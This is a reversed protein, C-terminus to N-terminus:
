QGSDARVHPRVDITGGGDARVVISRGDVKTNHFAQVAKAVDSADHFTVLGWGRSM